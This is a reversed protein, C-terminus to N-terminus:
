YFNDHFICQRAMYASPSKVNKQINKNNNLDSSIKQHPHQKWSNRVAKYFFLIAVQLDRRCWERRVHHAVSFDLFPRVRNMVRPGYLGGHPLNQFQIAPQLHRCHHYKIRRSLPDYFKKWTYQSGPFTFGIPAPTLSGEPPNCNKGYTPILLLKRQTYSANSKKGIRVLIDGTASYTFKLHNSLFLSVVSLSVISNGLLDMAWVDM